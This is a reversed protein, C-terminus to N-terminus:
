ANLPFWEDAPDQVTSGEAAHAPTRTQLAVRRRQAQLEADREILHALSCGMELQAAIDNLKVLDRCKLSRKLIKRRPKSVELSAQFDVSLDEERGRKKTFRSPPETVSPEALAEQITKLADKVAAVPTVQTLPSQFTKPQFAAIM